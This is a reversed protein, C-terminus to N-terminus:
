FAKCSKRKELMRKLARRANIIAGIAGPNTFFLFIFRPIDYVLFYFIFHPEIEINKLILFYRNRFAYHQRYKRSMGSGNRKHYCVANPLYLCKWSKKRARLAIDFDEILYFFDRDFYEGDINVDDLMDRRYIAAAACPGLIDTHNDYQGSDKEGSGRDFFRFFGSLVLGTSDILRESDARLIKAGLMGVDNGLRDISSNVESLFNNELVVDPNLTLIYEGSSVAIGTNVGESFGYNKDNNKIRVMGKYEEVIERTRDHSANDIVLIEYSGFDQKFISDLCQRIDRESNYTVILISFRIM